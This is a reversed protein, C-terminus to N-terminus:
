RRAPLLRNIAELLPQSHLGIVRLGAHHQALHQGILFRGTTLPDIHQRRHGRVIIFRILRQFLRQQPQSRKRSVLWQIIGILLPVRCVLGHCGIILLINGARGFANPEGFQIFPIQAAGLVLKGSNQGAIRIIRICQGPHSKRRHAASFERLCFVVEGLRCLLAAWLTRLPSRQSLFRRKVRCQIFGLLSGVCALQIFGQRDTCGQATGCPIFAIRRRQEPGIQSALFPIERRRLLHIAAQQRLIRLIIVGPQPQIIQQLLLTVFARFSRLDQLSNWGILPRFNRLRHHPHIDIGLAPLGLGGHLIAIRLTRHHDQLLRQFLLGRVNPHPEIHCADQVFLPLLQLRM